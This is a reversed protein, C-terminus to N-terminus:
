HHEYKVTHLVHIYLIYKYILPFLFTPTLLPMISIFIPYIENEPTIHNHQQNFGGLPYVVRILPVNLPFVLFFYITYKSFQAGCFQWKPSFYLFKFIYVSNKEFFPSFYSIKSIACQSKKYLLQMHLTNRLIQSIM